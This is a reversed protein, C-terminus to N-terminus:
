FFNSFPISKKSDKILNELDFVKEYVKFPFKDFLVRTSTSTKHKSKSLLARATIRIFNQPRSATKLRSCDFCVCNKKLSTSVYISCLWFMPRACDFFLFFLILVFTSCLRFLTPYFWFMLCLRFMTWAWDFNLFLMVSSIYTLCLSFMLWACDFHFDFVTLVCNSCLRFMTWASEFCLDLVILIFFSCMRFILRACDLCWDLVTSFFPSSQRFM